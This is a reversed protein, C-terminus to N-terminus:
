SSRPECWVFRSLTKDKHVNAIPFHRGHIVIYIGPKLFRIAFLTETLNQLGDSGEFGLPTMAGTMVIPVQLDPLARELYRGSEDSTTETSRPPVRLYYDLLHYEIANLASVKEANTLVVIGLQEDSRRLAVLVFGAQM